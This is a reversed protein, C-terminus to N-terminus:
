ISSGPWSCFALTLRAELASCRFNSVTYLSRKPPNLHWQLFSAVWIPRIWTTKVRKLVAENTWITIGQQYVFAKTFLAASQSRVQPETRACTVYLRMSWIFASPYESGQRKRQYNVPGWHDRWIPVSELLRRCWSCVGGGQFSYRKGSARKLWPWCHIEQHESLLVQTVTWIWYAAMIISAVSPLHSRASISVFHEWKYYLPQSLYIASWSWDCPQHRLDAIVIRVVGNKRWVLITRHTVIVILLLM